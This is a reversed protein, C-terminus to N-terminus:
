EMQAAYALLAILQQQQEDSVSLDTETLLQSLRAALQETPFSTAKSMITHVM